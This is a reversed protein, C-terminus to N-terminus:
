TGEFHRQRPGGRPYSVTVNMTEPALARLSASDLACQLDPPLSSPVRIRVVAEPDMGHLQHKLYATLSAASAWRASLDLSVMPRAPLPEFQVDLLRGRGADGPAFRALVYGKHEEREAFATREVSGSYIVPTALSRGSLDRRLVQHRHIHGSLIAAFASPIDRGRVVDPGYRFTFNQVGVRSGEVAVHLCLLRIDAPTSEYGTGEVLDTFGDRIGRPSPFGALAVRVGRVTHVFTSAQHFIHVNPHVTWLRLPIRHREHNGPVLFVPIGREAVRLLPAMAMQVIKDPVRARDLLDGGHVVLDVEARM